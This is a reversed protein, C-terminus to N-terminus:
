NQKLNQAPKTIFNSLLNTTINEILFQLACFIYSCIIKKENGLNMKM